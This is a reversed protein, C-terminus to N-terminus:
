DPDLGSSLENSSSGFDTLTDVGVDTAQFLYTDSGSGGDISDNGDGGCLVDQGNSGILTDDGAVGEAFGGLDHDFTLSNNNNGNFPRDAVPAHAYLYRQQADSGSADFVQSELDASARWDQVPFFNSVNRTGDFFPGIKLNILDDGDG